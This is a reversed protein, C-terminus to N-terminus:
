LLARSSVSFNSCHFHVSSVKCHFRLLKRLFRDSFYITTLSKMRGKKSKKIKLQRSVKNETIYATIDVSKNAGKKKDYETQATGTWILSELQKISM